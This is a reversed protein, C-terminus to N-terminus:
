SYMEWTSGNGIHPIYQEYTSGNNIWVTYASGDIYALGQAEWVGYLTVHTTPTVTEVFITSDDGVTVLEETYLRVTKSSNWELGLDPNIKRWVDYTYGGVVEKSEWFFVNDTDTVIDEGATMTKYIVPVKVGSSNVLYDYSVFIDNSTSSGEEDSFIYQFIKVADSKLSRSIADEIYADDINIGDKLKWGLFKYGSRTPTPLNVSLPTKIVSAAVYLDINENRDSAVTYGPRYYSTEDASSSVNWRRFAYTLKNQAQLPDLQIGNCPDLKVLYSDEYNVDHLVPEIDSLVLAVDHTKTQNTPMNSVNYGNDHYAVTYTFVSGWGATIRGDSDGFTYTNGSLSGGGSLSWRNFEKSTHTPNAITISTGSEGTKTVPTSSGNYLGSNPDITLTFYRTTIKGGGLKTATDCDAVVPNGSVTKNYDILLNVTKGAEVVVPKDFTFEFKVCDNDEVTFCEDYLVGTSTNTASYQRRGVKNNVTAVGNSFTSTSGDKNTRVVESSISQVGDSGTAIAKVTFELGSGTVPDSYSIPQGGSKTTGIYTANGTGLYIWWTHLLEDKNSTNTYSRMPYGPSKTFIEPTGNYGWSTLDKWTGM